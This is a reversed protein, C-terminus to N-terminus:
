LTKRFRKSIRVPDNMLKLDYVKEDIVQGKLLEYLCKICMPSDVDFIIDKYRIITDKIAKELKDKSVLNRRPINLEKSEKLLKSM